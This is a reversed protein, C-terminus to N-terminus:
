VDPSGRRVVRGARAARDVTGERVLPRGNVLVHEIGAPAADPERYSTRDDVGRPDFVVVDAFNGERLLGRQRLGVRQAPLSTSKRVAEELSFLRRERSFHGLMRPFTGYAAPHPKGRGTLIADSEAAALPHSLLKELGAEEDLEGSVGFYLAMAHGKEELVLDAAVDFPHVGREAAVESLSHGELPKNRESEVWMISINHWGTAEVLNHPWGGPMWCPWGPVDEEISRQVRARSDPDRLRGLLGDVGGALAWPPFIALLTTNAAIYPIVDFGTDVGRDRAREHLEVVADIKPWNPRGFAEIHSHQTPVGNLEGVRIVERTAPVLTESSGRVHSAYLAGYPRLEAALDEIEEPPAFIGPAYLLGSSLGWAGEELAMRLEHRMRAAEEPSLGRGEFGVEHIRLAGHAVLPVVNFMTGHEDLHDLYEGFRTWGAPLADARLFATYSELQDRTDPNVPAPSYGCNGTVLTTIGQAAFPALVDGHRDDALVFDSHSHIDIFGPAVVRDSADIVTAAAADPGLRGIAEIRGGRIGVDAPFWPNGTGDVVRGHRILVDFDTV